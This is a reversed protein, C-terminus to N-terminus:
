GSDFLARLGLLLRICPKLCARGLLGLGHMRNVVLGLWIAQEKILLAPSILM